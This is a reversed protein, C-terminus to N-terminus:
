FKFSDEHPIGESGHLLNKEKDGIWVENGVGMCRPPFFCRSFLMKMIGILLFSSGGQRGEVM